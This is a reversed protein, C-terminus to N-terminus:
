EDEGGRLNSIRSYEINSREVDPCGHILWGHCDLTRKVEGALPIRDDVIARVLIACPDVCDWTGLTPKEEVEEPEDYGVETPDNRLGDEVAVKIAKLTDVQGGVQFKGGNRIARVVEGNALHIDFDKLGDPRLVGVTKIVAPM